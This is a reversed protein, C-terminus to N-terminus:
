TIWFSFQKKNSEYPMNESLSGSLIESFLLNQLQINILKKSFHISINNFFTFVKNTKLYKHM